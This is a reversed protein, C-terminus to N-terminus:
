LFSFYIIKERLKLITNEFEKVSLDSRKESYDFMKDSLYNDRFFIAVSEGNDLKTNWPRYLLEPKSSVGGVWRQFRVDLSKSLPQEGSAIWSINENNFYQLIDQAVAGEGPWM